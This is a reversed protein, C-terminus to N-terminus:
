GVAEILSLPCSFDGGAFRGGIEPNLLRMRVKTKTLGTIMAEQGQLYAPRTQDNLRVKQGISFARVMAAKRRKVASEVRKLDDADAGHIFTIVDTTTISDAM